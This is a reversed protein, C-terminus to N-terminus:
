LSNLYENRTPFEMRYKKQRAFDLDIIATNEKEKLDILIDGNADIVMSHGGSEGQLSNVVITITQNEIARARALLIMHEIRSIPWQSPIIFLDANNETHKRFFEPFRLDYCIAFGINIKEILIPKSYNGKKIYKNENMVTILHSKQYIIESESNSSTLFLSNYVHNKNDPIFLTGTVSLNYENSYKEMNQLLEIDNRVRNEFQNFQFGQTFAEPLIFLDCQNESAEQFFQILKKKEYSRAQAIFVRM